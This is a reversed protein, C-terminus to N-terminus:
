KFVVAIQKRYKTEHSVGVPLSVKLFPVHRFGHPQEFDDLFSFVISHIPFVHHYESLHLLFHSSIKFGQQFCDGVGSQEYKDFSYESM